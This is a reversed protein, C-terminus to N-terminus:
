GTAFLRWALALAIIGAVALVVSRARDPADTAFSQALPIVVVLGIAYLLHLGESPAGGGLLLVLGILSQAVFVALVLGILPRIADHGRDSLAAIGAGAL